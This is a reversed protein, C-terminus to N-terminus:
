PCPLAAGGAASLSLSWPVQSPPRSSGASAHGCCCVVVGLAQAHYGHLFLDTKPKCRACVCRVAGGRISDKGDNTKKRPATKETNARCMTMKLKPKPKTETRDTKQRRNGECCVGKQMEQKRKKRQVRCKKSKWLHRQSTTKGKIARSCKRYSKRNPPPTPNPYNVTPGPPWRPPPDVCVRPLSLCMGATPNRRKPNRTPCVTCCPEPRALSKQNWRQVTSRSPLM